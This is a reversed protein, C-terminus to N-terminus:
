MLSTTSSKLICFLEYYAYDAEIHTLEGFGNKKVSEHYIVAELDGSLESIGKDDINIVSIGISTCLIFFYSWL